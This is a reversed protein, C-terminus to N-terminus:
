ARSLKLHQKVVEVSPSGPEVTTVPSDRRDDTKMLGFLRRKASFKIKDM